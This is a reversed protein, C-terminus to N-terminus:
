GRSVISAVRQLTADPEDDPTSPLTDLEFFVQSQLINGISIIRSLYKRSCAVILEELGTWLAVLRQLSQTYEDLVREGGDCKAM